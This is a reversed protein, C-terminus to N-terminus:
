RMGYVIRETRAARSISIIPAAQSINIVPIEALCATIIPIRGNRGSSRSLAAITTCIIGCNRTTVEKSWELYFNGNSKKWFRFVPCIRDM